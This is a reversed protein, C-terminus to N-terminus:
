HVMQTLDWMPLFIALAFFGVVGTLGVILIPAIAESLNKVAHDVEDDYHRAIERLMEELSGSEEGIAVMNIVMPPFFKSEKLPAAIGHGEQMYHKIRNFEATIAANGIAESIVNLAEIISIGSALLIALISAFRSMATKIFLPGIIPLRLLFRDKALTGAPTRLVLRLGIFLAAAGGLLVPWGRSISEYLLICIKTPLPLEINASEFVRVFKPIVFTLLFFFAGGLAILVMKPYTLASKVDEKVKHEHELIFTLRDLIAPLSGSIEGAAIMNCYLNSFVKPHNGFATALTSGRNIEENIEVIVHRLAPNETQKELVELTRTISLGARLLTNVQKTFMLLDPLKVRQFSALLGGGAGAERGKGVKKKVETPINGQQAIIQQVAAASDAEMTGQLPKGDPTIAKYEFIPM